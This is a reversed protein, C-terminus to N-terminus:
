TLICNSDELEVASLPDAAAARLRPPGQVGLEVRNKSSWDAHGRVLADERPLMTLTCPFVTITEM